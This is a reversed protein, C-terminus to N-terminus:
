LRSTLRSLPPVLPSRCAGLPHAHSVMGEYGARYLNKMANDWVVFVGSRPCAPSWNEIATIKGKRGEGGVHICTCRTNYHYLLSPIHGVM